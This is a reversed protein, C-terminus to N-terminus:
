TSGRVILRTPLLVPAEPLAKGAAADVLMRVAAAAMDRIPQHVTSLPPTLWRAGRIDDFGVVLVDEPIRRSAVAAAAYVGAAMADSGAFVGLREGPSMRTLVEVMHVHPEASGWSAEIVPVEIGPRHRRLVEIFGDKRARGFRYAPVGNVMAFATAGRDLLHEAAAAAGERDTTRVSGLGAGTEGVPDMLVIPIGAECLVSLQRSTPAIPGLMVGSSGRRRIRVPWDDDPDDREETLVLDYGADAAASRAGATVEDAYANHYGALVLDLLRGTGSPRGGAAPIRLYGLERAAGLVRRRTSSTM